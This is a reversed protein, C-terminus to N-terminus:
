NKKAYEASVVAVLACAALTAGFYKQDFWFAITAAIGYVGGVVRGHKRMWEKM